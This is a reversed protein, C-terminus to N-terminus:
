RRQAYAKCRAVFKQALLRAAKNPEIEPHFQTGLFFDCDPDEFAEIVTGHTAAIELGRGLRNVAQHHTSPFTTRAAKGLITRLKSNEFLRVAHRRKTPTLKQHLQHGDIHQHLTGGRAVNLLQAGRCIGWIPMGLKQAADVVALEFHDRVLCPPKCLPDRSAGYLAPEIDEGGILVLGDIRNLLSKVFRATARQTPALLTCAAGASTFFDLYRSDCGWSGVSRPEEPIFSACIGVIPLNM